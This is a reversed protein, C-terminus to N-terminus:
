WYQSYLIRISKIYGKFIMGHKNNVFEGKLFKTIVIVIKNIRGQDKKNYIM